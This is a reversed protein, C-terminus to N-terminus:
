LKRDLPYATILRPAVMGHDWQWVTRIQPRLGVPTNLEGDVTFRPGFPTIRKSTVLHVQGQQRLAQVLRDPDNLSFGFESFFKAKSRGYPHSPNLLYETIKELEVVLLEACPIQTEFEHNM